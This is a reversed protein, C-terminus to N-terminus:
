GIAQARWCAEVSRAPKRSSAALRTERLLDSIGAVLSELETKGVAASQM